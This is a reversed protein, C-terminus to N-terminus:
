LSFFPVKLAQLIKMFRVVPTHTLNYVFVLFVCDPIDMTGDLKFEPSIWTPCITGGCHHQGWVGTCWVYGCFAWLHQGSFASHLVVLIKTGVYTLNWVVLFCNSKLAKFTVSNKTTMFCMGKGKMGLCPKCSHPNAALEDEECGAARREAGINMSVFLCTLQDNWCYFLTQVHLNKDVIRVLPAIRVSQLEQM